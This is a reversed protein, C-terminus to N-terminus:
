LQVGIEENEEIFLTGIAGILAMFMVIMAVIAFFM